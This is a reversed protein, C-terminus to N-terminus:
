RWQIGSEEAKICEDLEEEIYDMDTMAYNGDPKHERIFALMQKYFALGYAAPLEEFRHEDMWEIYFNEEWDIPADYIGVGYDDDAIFYNGDTLRGVFVYIGGGTYEPDVTEITYKKNEM